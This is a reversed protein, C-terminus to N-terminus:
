GIKYWKIEILKWFNTVNLSNKYQLKQDIKMNLM